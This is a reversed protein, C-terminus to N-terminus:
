IIPLFHQFIYLESFNRCKGVPIFVRGRGTGADRM